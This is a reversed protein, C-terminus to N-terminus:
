SLDWGFLVLGCHRCVFKFLVSDSGPRYGKTVDRWGAEDQRYHALWASKTEASSRM